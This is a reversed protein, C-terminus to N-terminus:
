KVLRNWFSNLSGNDLGHGYTYGALFSLGRSLRKTLTVQLSNYKFYSGNSVQNIFHLYPFPVAYPRVGTAIDVQNIDRFLLLREGRNGVYGVELSLNNAFAHQIGLEL